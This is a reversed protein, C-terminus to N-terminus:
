LVGKKGKALASSSTRAINPKIEASQTGANVGSSTVPVNKNESTKLGLYAGASVGMLGLLEKSIITQDPLLKRNFVSSIYIVGVVLTWIVNQLRHISVGKEDSIIDM